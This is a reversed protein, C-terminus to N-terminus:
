KEILCEFHKLKGSKSREIAEKQEFRAILGPELYEVLANQVTEKQEKTLPQDAVYEFLFENLGTQKIVFEKMTDGKAMLAKSVYYFTLGAATNGSPLIVNDNTRGVVKELVSYNGVKKTSKVLRDGLEYRIFPMAKNYLSTVVAVGEHGPGVENGDEDLIEVLLTENNIIWNGKEDEMAILDLESAGYENVVKVGFGKEIIERDMDDCVESTTIVVNLTPCIEKATIGQKIFHKAFLVMTSPYGNAYYFKRKAFKKQFENLKAEGLNFVPFRVRRSLFDKTKEKYRKMGSLPIGYFRAQLSTGFCIGHKGFRDMVVAWTMAHAYKDKAFYFPTGSSGSTNNLYTNKANFPATFRKEIPAQLDSKKLIPIQRWDSINENGIFESYSKNKELHYKYIKWAKSKQHEQIMDDSLSKIHLLESEATRLKYGRLIFILKLIRNM